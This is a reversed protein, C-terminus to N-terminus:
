RQSQLGKAERENAFMAPAYTPGPNLSVNRNQQNYRKLLALFVDDAKNDAAIKDLGVL